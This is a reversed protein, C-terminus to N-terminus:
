QANKSFVYPVVTFRFCIIDEFQSGDDADGWDEPSTIFGKKKFSFKKQSLQPFSLKEM